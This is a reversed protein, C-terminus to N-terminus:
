RMPTTPNVRARDAVKKKIEILRLYANTKREDNMKKKKNQKNERFNM